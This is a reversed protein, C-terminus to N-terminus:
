CEAGKPHSPQRGDLVHEMSGMSWRSGIQTEHGMHAQGRFKRKELVKVKVFYIWTRYLSFICKIGELNLRYIKM